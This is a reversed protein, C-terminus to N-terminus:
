MGSVTVLTCLIAARRYKCYISCINSAMNFITQVQVNANGATHTCHGIHSNYAIGKCRAKGNNESRNQSPELPGTDREDKWEMQHIEITLYENKLIKEAEEEIM